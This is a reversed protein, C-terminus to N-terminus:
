IILSVKYNGIDCFMVVFILYGEFVMMCYEFDIMFLEYILYIFVILLFLLELWM